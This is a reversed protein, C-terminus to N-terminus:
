SSTILKGDNLRLTRHAFTSALKEDHTVIVVTTNHRDSFETLQRMIDAATQSDLNGTPEDALLLSPNNALARAIAVRQQEGGSLEAPRHRARDKLGVLELAETAKPRRISKPEGAFVFPLEVNQEATKTPILNFAQFIMGVSGLRYDAMEESGLANLKQGGVHIDGATPRDLGGLLNLLTSKGSGSRGLLALREGSKIELSVEDLATVAHRGSKYRRTVKELQVFPSDTM